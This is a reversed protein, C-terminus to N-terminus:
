RMAETVPLVWGGGLAKYLALLAQVRALRVQALLDLDTFLTQETTLATVLDITGAALQAEAIDFARQAVIVAAQERSEQETAYRLATLATEVDTFAQVLTKRYNAVLEDYRAKSQDFQGQLLGNDFITQTASAALSALMAGPGFLTAITTNAFGGAGTLQVNPFFAARAVKINANQSVLLAEAAAVDPRRLLLDSPLGPTVSPLAVATLPVPSIQVREPPEGVLIGLAIVQQEYQSQFNPITARVGEVLAQQQAVDLASNTGVELRGRVAALVTESTKLNRRAVDLRDKFGLAQFWTSAVSTVVTLAVTQQDFRSFKASALAAEFAARNKGWFDLVYSANLGVNYFRQTAYTKLPTGPALVPALIGGPNDIQAWSAGANGNLQPLLPSGAIAAKADAERIRAIAAIIDFNQTEAKAILGDLEASGFGHWWDSEPWSAQAGTSVARFAVPLEADPRHYDPGLDCGGLLVSLGALLWPVGAGRGVRATTSGIPRKM